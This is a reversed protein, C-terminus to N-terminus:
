SSSGRSATFSVAENGTSLMKSGVHTRTSIELSNLEDQTGEPMSLPHGEVGEHYLASARSASKRGFRQSQGVADHCQQQTPIELDCPRDNERELKEGYGEM